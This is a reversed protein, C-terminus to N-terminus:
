GAFNLKQNYIKIWKTKFTRGPKAFLTMIVLGAALYTDREEDHPM